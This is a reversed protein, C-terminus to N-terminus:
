KDKQMEEEMDEMRNELKKMTERAEENSAVLFDKLV